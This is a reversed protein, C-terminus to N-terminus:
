PRRDEGSGACPGAGQDNNRDPARLRRRAAVHKWVWRVLATAAILVYVVVVFLLAPIAASLVTAPDLGGESPQPGPTPMPTKEPAAPEESPAMIMHAMLTLVAGTAIMVFGMSPSGGRYRGLESFLVISGTIITAVGVGLSIVFLLQNLDNM